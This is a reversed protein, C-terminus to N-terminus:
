NFPDEGGFPNGDGFPDEADKGDDGIPADGGGDGNGGGFPSSADGGGSAAPTDTVDPGEEELGEQEATEKKGAAVQRRAEGHRIPEVQEIERLCQLLGTETCLYLRDTQSNLLKIPLGAVDLMDLRAGTDGRLVVIRGLKDEAYIRDKSAAVFRRIRPAWWLERGDKGDLCYMGGPQTTVYLRDDIVAAPQVIPVGTSFRWFSSGDKEDIAHVFGDRSTGIILGSATPDSPPLYTPRAAIGDDTELRYTIALRDEAMRDIRGINLFGRDTPWVVFEEGDNERTVLPQILAKGLSRCSLPPIYEQQLRINERREEERVAKDEDTENENIKGLELLPDTLSKLRYAMVMGNVMPVYARQSSLGAGAGPAGEVQTEFLVDGNYRNCAYLRSGNIIVVLDQNVGPTMSPYDSCGVMRAWLTQGTEADIAHVMARDTQVYIADEYLVVYRVRSRSTDLQVQTFWPRTLGHRAATTEAIIGSPRAASAQGCVLLTAVTAVAFSLARIM